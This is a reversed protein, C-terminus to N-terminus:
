PIAINYWTAGANVTRMLRNYILDSTDGHIIWGITPTVYAMDRWGIGGDNFQLRTWAWGGNVSRDLMSAGSSTALTVLRPRGPPMALTGGDGQLPAPGVKQFTRGGNASAFITKGMSGMAGNGACLLLIRTPTGAALSSFTYPSPCSFSRKHWHRLDTTAWLGPPVGAWGAHGYLTLAGAPMVGPVLTWRNAGARSQYLRSHGGGYPSVSAFAVGDSAAVASVAGPLYIRQWHQGGDHTAWLGPGFLWGDRTDAFRVTSVAFRPSVAYGAVLPVVPTHVATWTRGGDTTRVLRVACPLKGCGRAGLVFGTRGSVFSASTPEFSAGASAAAGPHAAVGMASSAGFGLLLAPVAAIAAARLPIKM